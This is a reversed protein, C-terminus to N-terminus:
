ILCFAQLWNTHCAIPEAAGRAVEFTHHQQIALAWYSRDLCARHIMALAMPILTGWQREIRGHQWHAYPTTRQLAIGFEDLLSMFEM